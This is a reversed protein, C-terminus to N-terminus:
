LSFLIGIHSLFMFKLAKVIPKATAVGLGRYDEHTFLDQLYAYPKLTWCSDHEVVHVIGVVRGAILAAFGYM